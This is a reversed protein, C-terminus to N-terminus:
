DNHIHGRSWYDKLQIISASTGLIALALGSVGFATLLITPTGFQQAVWIGGGCLITGAGSGVMTKSFTPIKEM